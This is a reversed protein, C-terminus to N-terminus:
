RWRVARGPRKENLLERLHVSRAGRLLVVRLCRVPYTVGAQPLPDGLNRQEGLGRADDPAVAGFLLLLRKVLPSDGFAREDLEVLLFKRTAVQVAAIRVIDGTRLM